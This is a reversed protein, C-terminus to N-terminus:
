HSPSGAGGGSDQSRTEVPKGISRLYIDYIRQAEAASIPSPTGKAAYQAQMIAAYADPKPPVDSSMAPTALLAAFLLGVSLKM